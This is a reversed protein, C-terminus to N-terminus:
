CVRILGSADIGSRGCGSLYICNETLCITSAGANWEDVFSTMWDVEKDANLKIAYMDQSSIWLCGAILLNGDEDSILDYAEYGPYDHIWLTDPQAQLWNPILLAIVLSLMWPFASAKGQIYANGEKLEFM